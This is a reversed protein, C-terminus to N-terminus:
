RKFSTIIIKSVHYGCSCTFDFDMMRVLKLRLDQVLVKSM